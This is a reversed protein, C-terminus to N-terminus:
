LQVFGYIAFYGAVACLLVAIAFSAVMAVFNGRFFVSVGIPFAVLCVVGLVFDIASYNRQVVLIAMRTFCFLCGALATGLFMHALGFRRISPQNELERSNM